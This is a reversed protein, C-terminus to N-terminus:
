SGGDKWCAGDEVRKVDGPARCSQEQVSEDKKQLVMMM